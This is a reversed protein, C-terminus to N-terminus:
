PSLEIDHKMDGAQVTFDLGSTTVDYYRDPIRIYRGAPKKAENDSRAPPAPREAKKGQLAKKADPSLPLDLPIAAGGDLKAPPELGRNDVSVKVTGVPLVAEYRGQEDIEAIVPNLKPDDPRFTLQGGPLPTGKFRVKGSVKSTARGCGAVVLLPLLWVVCCILRLRVSAFLLRHM